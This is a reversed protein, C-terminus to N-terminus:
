RDDTSRTAESFVQAFYSISFAAGLSLAPLKIFFDAPLQTDNAAVDLFALLLFTVVFAIFASRKITEFVYDDVFTRRDLRQRKRWSLRFGQVLAMVVALSAARTPWRSLASPTEGLPNDILYASAEMLQSIATLFIFLVIWNTYREFVDGLTANM